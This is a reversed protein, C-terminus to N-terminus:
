IVEVRKMRRITLWQLIIIYIIVALLVQLVIELNMKELQMAQQLLTYPVLSQARPFISSVVPSLYSFLLVSLGAIMGRKTLSSLYFLLAVIFAFYVSFLCGAALMQGYGVQEGAFLLNAYYTNLFFGCCCFVFIALTYHFFKALSIGRVLAGKSYPFVLRQNRIEESFIGMLGLAVFLTVMQFVEKNMYNQVAQTPDYSILSVFEKPLQTALLTPLLKMLVPDLIAFGIFGAALVIYRYQRWSEIIEKKFYAKFTRMGM